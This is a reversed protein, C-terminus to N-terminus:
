QCMAQADFATTNWMASFSVILPPDSNDFQFWNVVELSVPCQSTIATQFLKAYAAYPPIVAFSGVVNEFVYLVESFFTAYAKEINTRGTITGSGLPMNLAADPSFLLATFTANRTNQSEQYAWLQGVIAEETQSAVQDCFLLAVLLSFLLIKRHCMRHALV